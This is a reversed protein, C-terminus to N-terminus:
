TPSAEGGHPKGGEWGLESRVFGELTDLAKEIPSLEELDFWVIRPDRRFWTFQRKAYHRTDRKLIRIAEELSCKGRLYSHIEKYGLAQRAVPLDEYTEMLRRVEDVLGDRIQRDVREEIRRYLVPRPRTLGIMVTRYRPEQAKATRLHESLPRGTTEYVEIARIVRRVDNPHLRSATPPDIQALRQHLWQPGLQRAKEELEKRLAYDAGEDPFLFEDLVAKVYLGTGGSLIPLKGRRHIDAITAHALDRYQAVNFRQDPLVLDILHHPVGQREEPAPKDTGIDLGIYVQMSDATVVEGDLRRALGIAVKSKGVATPGVLVVLPGKKEREDM